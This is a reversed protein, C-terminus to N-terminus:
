AVVYEVHATGVLGAVAGSAQSITVYQDAGWVQRAKGNTGKNEINDFIGAATGLDAGDLLTDSSTEDDAAVGADVTSAGTSKTTTHVLLRTIILDVGLPNAIAAVGGGGTGTALEESVVGTDANPFATRAM